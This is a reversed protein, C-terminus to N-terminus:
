NNNLLDNYVEEGLLEKIKDHSVEPYDNIFQDFVEKAVKFNDSEWLAKISELMFSQNEVKMIELQENNIGIDARMTKVKDESLAREEINELKSNEKLLMRKSPVEKIRTETSSPTKVIEEASDIDAMAGLSAPENINVRGDKKQKLEIEKLVDGESFNQRSGPLMMEEVQVASDYLEVEPESILPQGTEEQMTVVLSVSLTIMAAVSVPMVWPSQHIKQKSKGKINSIEIAEKAASLIKEDLYSAPENKNSARYAKSLDSDSNLYDNLEKDNQENNAM